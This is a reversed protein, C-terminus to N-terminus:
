FLADLKEHHGDEQGIRDSTKVLTFWRRGKKIPRYCEAPRSAERCRFRKLLEFLSVEDDTPGSEGSALERLLTATARDRSYGYRHMLKELGENVANMFSHKAGVLGQRRRRDVVTTSASLATM